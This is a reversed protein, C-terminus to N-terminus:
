SDFRARRDEPFGTARNGCHLGAGVSWAGRANEMGHCGGERRCTSVWASQAQSKRGAAGASSEPESERSGCNRCSGKVTVTARFFNFPLVAHILTKKPTRARSSRKGRFAQFELGTSNGRGLFAICRSKRPLRRVLHGADIAPALAETLPLDGGTLWVSLPEMKMFQRGAAPRM